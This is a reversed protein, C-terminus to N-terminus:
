KVEEDLFKALYQLPNEELVMRSLRYQWVRIYKRWSSSNAEDLERQDPYVVDFDSSGEVFYFYGNEGWFAKANAFNDRTLYWFIGKLEERCKNYIGERILNM